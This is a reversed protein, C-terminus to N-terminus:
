SNGRWQTGFLLIVFVVVVVILFETATKKYLKEMLYQQAMGNVGYFCTTLFLTKLTIDVPWFSLVWSIEAIVFALCVTLETVRRSVKAELNVSWLLQFILLFSMLGTILCNFFPGFRLSLISECLLFFVALSLLFGVTHAARLLAITRNAAVNYINETLLLAYIAVAYLIVVPIRTLWRVPLLFYFFGVGGTFMTPLILLTFWEIGSLEERLAFASTIFTLISLLAVMAYRYDNPVIQTLLLGGTLIIVIIVFLQRKTLTLKRNWRRYRRIIFTQVVPLPNM